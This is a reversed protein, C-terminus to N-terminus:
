AASQGRDRLRAELDLTRPFLVNNELHVHQHMDAELERLGDVLARWTGCAEAPVTFGNTLSRLAALHAGAAEHEHELNVISRDVGPAGAGPIWAAADLQKVAPFLVQEEDAMHAELEARFATLCAHLEAMEPHLDGHADRVKASLATLRPLAQRLMDHYRSVIYDCLEALPAHVWNVDAHSDPAADAAHLERLVAVADVSKAACAAALSRKGGCCYDIGWREFVRSRSPRDAVLSGVSTDLLTATATTTM